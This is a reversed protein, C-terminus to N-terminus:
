EFTGTITTKNTLAAGKPLKTKSSNPKTGGTTYDCGNTGNTSDCYYKTLDVKKFTGNTNAKVTVETKMDGDLTVTLDIDNTAYDIKESCKIYNDTTAAGSPKNGDQSCNELGDIQAASVEKVIDRYDNVFTDVKGKNLRTIILNAGVVGVIALLVIVALLEILTFGKKNKILRTM